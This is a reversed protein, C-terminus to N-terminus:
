ECKADDTHSPNEKTGAVQMVRKKNKAFDRFLYPHRGKIAANEGPQFRDPGLYKDQKRQEHNQFPPMAMFQM